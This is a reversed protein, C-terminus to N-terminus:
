CFVDLVMSLLVVECHLKVIMNLLVCEFHRCFGFHVSSNPACLFGGTVKCLKEAIKQSEETRTKWYLLVITQGDAM